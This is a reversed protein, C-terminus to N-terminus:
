APLGDSHIAQVYHSNPNPSIRSHTSYPRTIHHHSLPSRSDAYPPPPPGRCPGPPNPFSNPPVRFNCCTPLLIDVKLRNGSYRVTMSIQRFWWVGGGWGYRQLLELWAWGDQKVGQSLYLEYDEAVGNMIYGADKCCSPHMSPHNSGQDFTVGDVKRSEGHDM